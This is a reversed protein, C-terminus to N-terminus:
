SGFPNVFNYSGNVWQGPFHAQFQYTGVQEPTYMFYGGSIASAEYPGKEETSGDPKTITVTFGRFHQGGSVGHADPNVKDMQFTVVLQQGVGIPNPYVAVFPFTNWESAVAEAFQSNVAFVSLTMLVILVAISIKKIKGSNNM